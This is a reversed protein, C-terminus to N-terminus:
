PVPPAPALPASPPPAPVLSAAPSARRWRLRRRRPGPHRRRRSHRCEEPAQAHSAADACAWGARGAWTPHGEGAAPPDPEAAFGASAVAMCFAFCLCRTAWRTTTRTWVGTVARVTYGIPRGGRAFWPAAEPRGSAGGVWGRWTRTFDEWCDQWGVQRTFRSRRSPGRAPSSAPTM